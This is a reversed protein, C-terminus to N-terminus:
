RGARSRREGPFCPGAPCRATPRSRCRAPAHGSRRGATAPRRPCVGPGGPPLIVGGPLTVAAPSSCRWGPLVVGGPLHVGGRTVGGGGASRWGRSVAAGTSVAAGPSVAVGPQGGGGLVRDGPVVLLEFTGNIEDFRDRGVVFSHFQPRAGGSLQALPDILEIETFQVTVPGTYFYKIGYAVWAHGQWAFIFPRQDTISRIMGAVDTPVGYHYAGTLAVQSGDPRTYVGEIARKIPEFSGFTPLCPLASAPPTPSAPLHPAYIRRVFEEQPVNSIGQSRALMESSAAWCWNQCNQNAVILGVNEIRVEHIEPQAQAPPSNGLGAVALTLIVAM